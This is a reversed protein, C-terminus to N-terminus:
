KVYFNSGTESIEHIIIPEFRDGKGMVAAEIGHVIAFGSQSPKFLENSLFQNFLSNYIIVEM